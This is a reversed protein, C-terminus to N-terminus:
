PREKEENLLEYLFYTLTLLDASGGPSINLSVWEKDLNWLTTQWDEKQFTHFDLTEQAQRQVKKLAQLQPQRHLITTDDTCSILVFLAHLLAKNIPVHHLMDDTLVPLSHNFISPFGQAVEGRIGKIQYLAYCKEGATQPVAVAHLEDSITASVAKVMAAISAPTLPTHLQRLKGIAGLLIGMSFILGKHTNINGTAAYMDAEAQKGLVRLIPLLEQPSGTHAFGADVFRSFWPQLATSSNIFTYFDMDKHSGQHVCDVLGPSPYCAAEYLAAQAAYRGLRAGLPSPICNTEIIFDTLLETVKEQIAQPSHRHERMCLVAPQDCIFCPRGQPRTPSSIQTGQGDFVDLDWLRSYPHSSELQCTIEKVTAPAESLALLGQPGTEEEYKRCDLFAPFFTLLQMIAAHFLQRLLPSDKTPGPIPLTVSIITAGPFQQHLKNRRSVRREKADLMSQLTLM